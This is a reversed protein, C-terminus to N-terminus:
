TLMYELLVYVLIGEMRKELFIDGKKCVETATDM